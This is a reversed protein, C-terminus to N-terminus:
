KKSSTSNKKGISKSKKSKPTEQRFNRAYIGKRGANYVANFLDILDSPHMNRIDDIEVDSDITQLTEYIVFHKFEKEAKEDSLKQEKQYEVLNQLASEHKETTWNPMDFSEGDNVFDLSYKPKKM